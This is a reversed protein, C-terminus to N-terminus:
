KIKNEELYEKAAELLAKSADVADEGHIYIDAVAEAFTEGYSVGGDAQLGKAYESISGCFEEETGSHGYESQWKEYALAVIEKEITQNYSLGNTIYQSYADENEETIYYIDDFGVCEMVIVNLLHHGLEHVVVSSIDTGKPWHGEAVSAECSELLKERNQFKAASLVIEHKVVTPRQGFEENIIFERYHTEAVHSSNKLEFNGLTINTLKGHLMPYESYMYDVAKEVDKATEVDIEGLNVAFIGYEKEIRLEIEEVEPNDYKERQLQGYKIIQNKAKEKTSVYDKYQKDYEIVTELGERLKKASWEESVKTTSESDNHEISTMLGLLVFILIAILLGLLGIMLWLKRKSM